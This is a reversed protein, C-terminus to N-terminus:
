ESAVCVDDDGLWAGLSCGPGPRALWACLRDLWAGYACVYDGPAVGGAEADLVRACGRVDVVCFAPGADPVYAACGACGVGALGFCADCTEGALGVDPTCGALLLTDDAATWWEGWAGGAFWGRVPACVWAACPWPWPWTWGFLGAACAFWLM